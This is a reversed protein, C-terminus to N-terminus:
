PAIYGSVFISHTTVTTSTICLATNATLKIPTRLNLVAGGNIAPYLEFLVTGGSGDLLTVNGAVAGNSLMIDTVFLSLSAGPAAKVSANTQASGYDASVSWFRPHVDNVYLRRNNDTTLSAADDEASVTGPDTGDFNKMFGGIRVPNGAAAADDAADGVVENTNTGAALTVNPMTVIDVNGINNDGAAISLIDVDGIDVGSNAALKGIANTGAPLASVITVSADGSAGINLGRENGAADRVQIYINRNASMRAAGADGENVSDPAVDDFEFGAMMVKTTAPTFAADDAVIADDILQLSTLADGNVQVAFTGGNDVTLAGGNDTVPIADVHKVYLEGNNTGRAAVNDGDTTTVAALSDARILNLATGVPNAAAAADETYQTGAGFATIQDGNGDLIAVALGNYTTLDVVDAYLGRTTGDEIVGVVARNANIRAAAADNETLVTGAVEDYIYGVMLVRTTGDVFAANDVINGWNTINTLTTVTTITGSAVTVALRNSADINLGRENGAADRIQVYLTRNASMRLIGIDGENVSDPSTDDFTAGFALVSSTGPTFAADDVFQADLSLSADVLLRHTTPDSWLVVPTTGDANSTGLLATVQNDDRPAQAM